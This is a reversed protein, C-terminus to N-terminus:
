SISRCRSWPCDRGLGIGSGLGLDLGLVVAEPVLGIEIVGLCARLGLGLGLGLGTYDTGPSRRILIYM